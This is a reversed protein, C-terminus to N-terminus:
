PIMECLSLKSASMLTETKSVLMRMKPPSMEPWRKALLHTQLFSPVLIRQPTRTAITDNLAPTEGGPQGQSPGSRLSASSTALLSRGAKSVGVAM